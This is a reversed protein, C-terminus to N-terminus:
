NSSYCPKNKKNLKTIAQNLNSTSYDIYFFEWVTALQTWSQKKDFTKGKIKVLILYVV